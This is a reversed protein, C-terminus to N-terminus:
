SIAMGGVLKKSLNVNGFHKKRNIILVPRPVEQCLREGGSKKLSHVIFLSSSEGFLRIFGIIKVPHIGDIVPMMMTNNLKTIFGAFNQTNKLVYQFVKIGNARKINPRIFRSEAQICNSLACLSVIFASSSILFFHVTRHM